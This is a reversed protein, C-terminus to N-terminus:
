APFNLVDLSAVCVGVRPGLYGVELCLDLAIDQFKQFFIKYCFRYRCCIPFYGSVWTYFVQNVDVCHPETCCYFYYSPDVDASDALPSHFVAIHLISFAILCISIYKNVKAFFYLLYLFCKYILFWYFHKNLLHTFNSLLYNQGLMNIIDMNLLYM